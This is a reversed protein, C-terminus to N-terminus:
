GKASRPSTAMSIDVPVNDIHFLTLTALSPTPSKALDFTVANVGDVVTFQVTQKQVAQPLRRSLFWLL